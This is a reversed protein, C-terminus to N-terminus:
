LAGSIVYKTIASLIGVLLALPIASPWTSHTPSSIVSESAEWASAVRLGVNLIQLAVWAM